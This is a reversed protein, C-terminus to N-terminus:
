GLVAQIPDPFARVRFWIVAFNELKLSRNLVPTNLTKDESVTGSSFSPGRTNRTRFSKRLSLRTKLFITQINVNVQITANCCLYFAGNSMKGLPVPMRQPHTSEKTYFDNQRISQSPSYQICTNKGTNEIEEFSVPWRSTQSYADQVEIGSHFSLYTIKRNNSPCVMLLYLVQPM